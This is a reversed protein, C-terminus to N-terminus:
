TVKIKEMANMNLRFLSPWKLADGYVDQRGAVDLLSENKRVKCFVEKVPAQSETPALAAVAESAPGKEATPPVTEKQPFLKEDKPPMEENMSAAQPAPKAVTGSASGKEVAPPLTEKQPFLKEDKPPMEEKMSAAQPAPEAVAGSASWKEVTPPLTEDKTPLTEDKTSREEKVAAPQPAPEAPKRSAAIEAERAELLKLNEKAIEVLGKGALSGTNSEEAVDKPQLDILRKYMQRAKDLRGTEQYVVGMNLLAYPNDPNISLAKELSVEAQGYNKGSIEQFGQNSLEMDQTACGSLGLGISLSLFFILLIKM